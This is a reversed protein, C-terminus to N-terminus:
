QFDRLSTESAIAIMLRSYKRSNKKFGRNREFPLWTKYSTHSALAPLTIYENYTGGGLRLGRPKLSTWGLTIFMVLPVVSIPETDRTIEAPSIFIPIHPPTPKIFVKTLAGAQM